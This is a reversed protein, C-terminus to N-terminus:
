VDVEKLGHMIFYDNRYSMICASRSYNEISPLQLIIILSHQILPQILGFKSTAQTVGWLQRLLQRNCRHTLAQSPLIFIVQADSFHKSDTTCQM